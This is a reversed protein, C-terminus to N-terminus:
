STGGELRDLLHRRARMLGWGLVLFLVGLSILSLSRGMKDMVSSFYFTLVTLAFGALGMNIRERRSEHLGWWVLAVAAVGCLLYPGLQTWLYHSPNRMGLRIPTFLMLAVWFATALYQWAIRKRLLNGLALGLVLAVLGILTILSILSILNLSHLLNDVMGSSFYFTLVTLSLGALGLNTFYRRSERMGWWVLAVTAGGFLIYLSLDNWASALANGGRTTTTGLLVVWAAAALNEWAIRRRLLNGLALPLGIAVVWGVIALELPIDDNRRWWWWRPRLSALYLVLPILSLGGIWVLARRLYSDEGPWRATFYIISLLTLGSVLILEHGRYSETAVIWEAAIWMPAFIAALAGQEWWGLVAWAIVAGIAWLMIGSTWHEELHFIQGALFLGAGLTITGVFALARALAEIREVLLVAALHFGGVMALVLSFRSAPSLEEWHAAVFLLIGAGILVAGLAWAIMVPWRFSAASDRESEFGRIRDAVAAEIVGADLWRQVDSQWNRFM